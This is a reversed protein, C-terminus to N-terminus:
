VLKIFWNIKLLSYKMVIMRIRHLFATFNFVDSCLCGYVLMKFYFRGVGRGWIDDYFNVFQVMLLGNSSQLYSASSIQMNIHKVDLCVRPGGSTLTSLLSVTQTKQFHQDGFFDCLFRNLLYVVSRFCPLPFVHLPKCNHQSRYNRCRQNHIHLPTPTTYNLFPM